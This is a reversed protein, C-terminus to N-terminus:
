SFSKTLLCSLHKIDMLWLLVKQCVKLCKSGLLLLLFKNKAVIVWQLFFRLQLWKMSRASHYSHGTALALTAVIRPEIGADESVTSSSPRCFFCHQIFYMFFLGFADVQKNWTFVEKAPCYYSLPNPVFGLFSLCSTAVLYSCLFYILSIRPGIM